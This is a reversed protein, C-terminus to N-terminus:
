PMEVLFEPKEGRAVRAINAVVDHDGKTLFEDPNGGAIHPTWIINDLGLLPCDSPVPEWRYVDLAAGAIRRESLVRYLANEDIIGGRSANILFSGRKMSSLVEDNFMKETAPGYPVLVCVYDAEQVLQKLSTMYRAEIMKERDESARHRQYYVIKLGVRQAAKGIEIGNEGLGVLGLTKGRVSQIHSVRAWNYKTRPPGESRSGDQAHIRNKVIEHAHLLNRSSAFIVTLIHETISLTSSRELCAVLIGLKKAGEMDINKPDQGHKQILKLRGKALKMLDYTIRTRECILYDAQAIMSSLKDEEECMIAKFGPPLGVLAPLSILYNLQKEINEGFFYHLAELAKPSAKGNIATEIRRLAGDEEAFLVIQENM